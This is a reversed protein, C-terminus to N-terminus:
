GLPKLASALQMTLERLTSRASRLTEDALAEGRGAGLCYAETRRVTEIMAMLEAPDINAIGYSVLTTSGLKAAVDEVAIGSSVM